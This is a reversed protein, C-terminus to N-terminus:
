GSEPDRDDSQLKPFDRRIEETIRQVILDDEQQKRTRALPQQRTPPSADAALKLIPEDAM